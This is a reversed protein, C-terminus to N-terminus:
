HFAAIAQTKHSPIDAPPSPVYTLAIMGSIDAAIAGVVFAPLNAGGFLADFPRRLISIMMQPVDIVLNMVGLSLGRGSGSDVSFISALAFPVSYTM